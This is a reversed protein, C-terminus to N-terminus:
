FTEAYTPTAWYVLFFMHHLHDVDNCKKCTTVSTASTCPFVKQSMKLVACIQVFVEWPVCELDFM